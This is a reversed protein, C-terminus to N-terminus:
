PKSYFNITTVGFPGIFQSESYLYKTYGVEVCSGTLTRGLRRTHPAASPSVCIDGCKEGKIKYQMYCNKKKYNLNINDGTIYSVYQTKFNKTLNMLFCFYILNLFSM